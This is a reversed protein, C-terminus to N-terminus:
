WEAQLFSVQMAPIIFSCCAKTVLAFHPIQTLSGSKPIIDWCWFWFLFRTITLLVFCNDFFPPIWVPVLSVPFSYSCCPIQWYLPQGLSHKSVRSVPLVPYIYSCWSHPCPIRRSVSFALNSQIEGSSGLIRCTQWGRFPWSKERRSAKGEQEAM